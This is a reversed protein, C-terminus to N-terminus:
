RELQLQLELCTAELEECCNNKDDLEVELSSFNQLVENLPESRNGDDFEIVQNSDYGRTILSTALSQAQASTPAIIIARRGRYANTAAIGALLAPVMQRALPAVLGGAIFFTFITGRSFQGSIKLAFSVLLLFSFTVLWATLSKGVADFEPRPKLPAQSGSIRILSCYLAAAIAGTALFARVDGFANRTALHFVIGSAVSTAVIIAAEIGLAWLGVSTAGIARIHPERRGLSPSAEQAWISDSM